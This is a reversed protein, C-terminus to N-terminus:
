YSLSTQPPPPNIQACKNRKNGHQNKRWCHLCLDQTLDPADFGREPFDSQLKDTIYVLLGESQNAHGESVKSGPM